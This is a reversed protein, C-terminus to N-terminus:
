QLFKRFVADVQQQTIGVEQAIREQESKLFLREPRRIIIEEMVVTKVIMALWFGNRILALAVNYYDSPPRGRFALIVAAISGGLLINMGLMTSKSIPRNDKRAIKGVYGAARINGAIAVVLTLVYMGRIIWFWTVLSM